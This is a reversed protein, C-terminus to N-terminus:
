GVLPFYHSNPVDVAEIKKKEGKIKHSTRGDIV